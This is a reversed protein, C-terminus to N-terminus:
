TDLIHFTIGDHVAAAHLGPGVDHASVAIGADLAHAAALAEAM